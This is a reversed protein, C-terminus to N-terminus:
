ENLRWWMIIDQNDILNDPNTNIEDGDMSLMVMEQSSEQSFLWKVQNTPGSEKGDLEEQHSQLEKKLAVEQKPDLAFQSATQPLGSIAHQSNYMTEMFTVTHHLHLERFSEQTIRYMLVTLELLETPVM